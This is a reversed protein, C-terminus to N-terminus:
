RNYISCWDIVDCILVIHKTWEESWNNEVLPIGGDIEILIM